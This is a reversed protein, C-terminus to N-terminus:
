VAPLLLWVLVIGGLAGAVAGGAQDLQQAPGYPISRRLQAGVAAGVAGGLSAIVIFIGTVLVLNSGPDPMRFADLIRPAVFAAVLIGIGLGVWSTTRAVFGLRYGGLALLVLLVLIVVDFLSM